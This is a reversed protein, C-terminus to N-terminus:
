FSPSCGLMCEEVVVWAGLQRQELLAVEVAPLQPIPQTGFLGFQTMAHTM